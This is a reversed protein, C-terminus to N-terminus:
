GKSNNNVSKILQKNLTIVKFIPLGVCTIVVFEGLAVSIASTWFPLKLVFYLEMGVIIGNILAPWLTSILQHTRTKNMFFLSIATALTGFIVDILGMPSFLNAIVCGIILGSVYSSNILMLLLLIESFRFQVAGYSPAILTLLLYLTAVFANKSLKSTM